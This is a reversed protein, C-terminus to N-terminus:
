PKLMGQLPPMQIQPRDCSQQVHTASDSIVPADFAIDRPGPASPDDEKIVIQLPKGLSAAMHAANRFKEVETDKMRHLTLSQDPTLAFQSKVWVKVDKFAEAYKSPPMSQIAKNLSQNSFLAKREARGALYTERLQGVNATEMADRQSAIGAQPDARKTTQQESVTSDTGVPASPKNGSIPDM